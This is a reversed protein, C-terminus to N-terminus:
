FTKSVFMINISNEDILVYSDNKKWDGTNYLEAFNARKFCHIPAHTHGMVVIDYGKKAMDKRAANHVKDVAKSYDVGSLSTCTQKGYTDKWSFNLVKSSLGNLWASVRYLWYHKKYMHDYEDGHVVGVVRGDPLSFKCEKIVPIETLPILPNDLYGEDHNGLLYEIKMKASMRRLKEITPFYIRKIEEASMDWLDFIDGALILRDCELTLLFRNLHAVNAEPSGIHCDSLIVTRM